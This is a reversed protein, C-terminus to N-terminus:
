RLTAYGIRGHLNSLLERPWLQRLKKERLAAIFIIRMRGLSSLKVQAMPGVINESTVRFLWDAIPACWIIHFVRLLLAPWGAVFCPIIPALGSSAATMSCTATTAGVPEVTRM